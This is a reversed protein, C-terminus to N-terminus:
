VRRKWRDWAYIFLKVINGCFLLFAPVGDPIQGVVRKAWHIMISNYTM